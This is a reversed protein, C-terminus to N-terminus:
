SGRSRAECAAFERAHRKISADNLNLNEVGGDPCFKKDRIPFSFRVLTAKHCVRMCEETAEEVVFDETM